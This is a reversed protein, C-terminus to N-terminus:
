SCWSGGSCGDLDWGRAVALLLTPRVVARKPRGREREPSGNLPAPLHLLHVLSDVEWQSTAAALGFALSRITLALALEVPYRFGELPAGSRAISRSPRPEIRQLSSPRGERSLAGSAPRYHGSLADAGRPQSRRPGNGAGGRDAQVDGRQSGPHAGVFDFGKWPMRGRTEGARRRPLEFRAHGLGDVYGADLDLAEATRLAKGVEGGHLLRDRESNVGLDGLVVPDRRVVERGLGRSQVVHDGRGAPSQRAGEGARQIRTVDLDVPILELRNGLSLDEVAVPHKYDLPDRDVVPQPQRGLVVRLGLPDVAKVCSRTRDCPAELAPDLHPRRELEQSPAPRPPHGRRWSSRRPVSRGFGPFSPGARDDLLSDTQRALPETLARGPRRNSNPSSRGSRKRATVRATLRGGVGPRRQSWRM